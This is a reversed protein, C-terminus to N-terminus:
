VPVASITLFDVAVITTATPAKAFVEIYDGTSMLQM